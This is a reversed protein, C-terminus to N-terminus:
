QPLLYRNTKNDFVLKVEKIKSGRRAKDIGVMLENKVVEYEQPSLEPNLSPRWLLFINDASAELDGGGKMDAMTPKEWIRSGRNLQSLVIVHTNNSKALPKMGKATEALVSYESCNKMYQIYDIFVVNVGKDFIKANAIKIYNDIEAITLSNKDVIFLRNDVKKKISYIIPSHNKIMDDVVSVPKELLMAIIREYLAGADMELSFFLVNLKQRVVMDLCMQVILATKGVSSYGGIFTVDKLRAGGNIGNDLPSFGYEIPTQSILKFADDICRDVDKFDEDVDEGSASVHLFDRVIREEILWRDALYKAIDVLVLEDTVSKSFKEAIKREAQISNCKELAVELAALDLSWKSCEDINGGAVLLENVDKIGEPLQIIEFAVKPCYKLVNSRVKSLLSRAVNDNDPVLIVTLEPNSEAMKSIKSLQQKTPQSSNYAVAAKGMQYLSMVCFYGEVLYLENSLKEKAQRMGYLFESKTFISSNKSNLYKAGEFRRVAYGIYLGNDNIFPIVVNGNNAGLHYAQITEEELKREDTLYGKVSNINKEFDVLKEQLESVIKKKEKYEPNHKVDINLEDAIKEVATFFDVQNIDRVLNIADGSKGCAWCHYTRHNYVVFETSNDHKCIPCVGRYTDGTPTLETFREAYDVLDIQSIIHEIM